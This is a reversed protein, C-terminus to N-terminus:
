QQELSLYRCVLELVADHDPRNLSSVYAAVAEELTDASAAACAARKVHAKAEKADPRVCWAIDPHVSATAMAQELHQAPVDWQVRLQQHAFRTGTLTPFLADAGDAGKVRLYRPGAVTHCRMDLGLQVSGYGILGPNDFGTPVLAGCQILSVDRGGGDDSHGTLFYSATWRKHWNGSVVGAFGYDSCLDTLLSATVADHSGKLFSPTDDTEIGLHLGLTYGAHPGISDVVSPLWESADGPQYPVLVLGLEHLVQPSDVVTVGPVYQLPALAHDGAADSCIDHNGLLVVVPVTSAALVGMVASLQQPSPSSTDFLDGLIVFASARERTAVRLADRLADVCEVCRANLGAVATGGFRRHNGVHVDAVFAVNPKM